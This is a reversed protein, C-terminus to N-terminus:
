FVREFSYTVSCPPIAKPTSPCIFPGVKAGTALKDLCSSRTILPQCGQRRAKAAAARSIWSAELSVKPLGV